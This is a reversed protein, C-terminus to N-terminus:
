YRPVSTDVVQSWADIGGAVNSVDTFGEGLFFEGASQSRGGHHCHFVLKTDKPLALLEDRVTDTLQEAREIKATERESDTRVDLLRFTAGRDFMSKLDMVTIQKVTAPANPNDLVFGAGRMDEKFDISLGNARKASSRDFALKVGNAEVVIDRPGVEAAVGMEQKFNGAIQIRLFADGGDSGDAMAAKLKAAAADTLHITPPEVPAEKIGLATALEGSQYMETVIDCGGQFEGNVYLQPITPWDSFAKIGNRIAPDSLVNITEYDDVLDDLMQVVRASFGCQPFRRSGKMFLLVPNADVKEQISAHVADSM